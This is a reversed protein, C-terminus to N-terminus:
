DHLANIGGGGMPKTRFGLLNCFHLQVQGKRTPAILKCIDGASIKAGFIIKVEDSTNKL